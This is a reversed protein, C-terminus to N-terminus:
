ANSTLYEVLLPVPRGTAGKQAGSKWFTGAIDLHAWKYDKTFTSLFCAATVSGGGPSGINAYDAFNSKLQATYEDWLPMQWARDGANIGATTLDNGLKDDNSYLGSAHSGLAMICAGTLTAVDIVVEPKYKAAYTLVDCLVLRGEADTNLIEITTGSMAKVIDGPKTAKGSPMNEVAGVLMVINIPLEMEAAATIVGFVSAAGGMDYKMEDMGAGPKLSIGGTDFTVGKGVLVKNADRKTGGKYELIILKAPTDSGASVSLLSNMGLEKMEKEDVIKAILKPYIKALAKARNALYTPNCINSPLDGLERAENVGTAVAAGKALAKNIAESGKRAALQLTVKKLTQKAPKKSKFQTFQYTAEVILRATQTAKWNNDRDTVAVDEICLLADKAKSKTLTAAIAGAFKIFGQEDMAKGGTGVLLVRQASIDAIIPLMLCIGNAEPLDGSNKLASLTGSTAKDLAQATDGSLSADVAVVLCTTKATLAPTTRILFDM